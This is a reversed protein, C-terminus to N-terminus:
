AEEASCHLGHLIHAIADEAVAGQGQVQPAIGTDEIHGGGGLPISRAKCTSPNNLPKNIVGIVM